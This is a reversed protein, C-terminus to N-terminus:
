KERTLFIYDTAAVIMMALATEVWHPAALRACWKLNRGEIANTYHLDASAKFM